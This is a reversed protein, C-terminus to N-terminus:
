GILGELRMEAIEQSIGEEFSRPAFGLENVAKSIDFVKDEKLRLVQEDNIPFGPLWQLARVFGVAIATNFNFKLVNRGLKRTITEIISRYSLPEPGALNYEQNETRPDDISAIIGDALDNAHVPQMLSNGGGFVPFLPSRDLFLILRHMNKDRVSGYIMSPRLITYVVGSKRIREENVIYLNACRQYKSFIGTTTVFYAREVGSSVVAELSKNYHKPHTMDLYVASPNLLNKFSEPVAVNGVHLKLGLSKLFRTDSNERVICIIKDPGVKEILRKIVANGTGSTAGAVVYYM